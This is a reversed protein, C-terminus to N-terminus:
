RIRLALTLGLGNMDRPQVVSDDQRLYYIDAAWKENFAKSLGAAFRNRNWRHFLSFYSVEDWVFVTTRSKASLNYDVRPRNRYIWFDKGGGIAGLFRNRDSVTWSKRTARMTMAFIPVQVHGKKGSTTRFAAYYYSPTFEFHSGANLKFDLGSLYAAPNPYGSSFRGQTVWAIDLIRSARASVDVEDWSQFDSLPTASSQGYAAIPMTALLCRFFVTLGM